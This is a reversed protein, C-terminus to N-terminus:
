PFIMVELKIFWVESLIANLDIFAIKNSWYLKIQDVYRHVRRAM